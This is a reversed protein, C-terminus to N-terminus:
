SYRGQALTLSEKFTWTINLKERQNDKNLCKKWTGSLQIYTSVHTKMLTWVSENWMATFLSISFNLLLSKKGGWTRAQWAAKMANEKSYMCIYMKGFASLHVRYTIISPPFIPPSPTHTNLLVAKACTRYQASFMTCISGWIVGLIVNLM